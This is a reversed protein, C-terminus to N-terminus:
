NKRSHHVFSENGGNKDYLIIGDPNFSLMVDRETGEFLEKGIENYEGAQDSIGFSIWNNRSSDYPDDIWGIVRSAILLDNPICGEPIGLMQIVDYLFMYGYRKLDLNAAKQMYMLTEYNTRGNKSWHISAADFWIEWAGGDNAKNVIKEIEEIEGTEPDVVEYKVTTENSDKFIDKEVEEGFKEKVKNRYSKFANEVTVYAAGLAIEKDRMAKYGTGMFALSATTFVFPLIYVKALSVVTQRQIKRIEKKHDNVNILKNAVLENDNLEEKLKTIKKNSPVLIKEAKPAQIATSVVAAITFGASLLTFILGKNKECKFQAQKFLRKIDM